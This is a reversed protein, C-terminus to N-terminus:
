CTPINAVPNELVGASVMWMGRVPRPLPQERVEEDAHEPLLPACVRTIWQLM